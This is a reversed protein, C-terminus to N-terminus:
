GGPDSFSQFLLLTPYVKQGGLADFILWFRFFPPRSFRHKKRGGGPVSEAENSAGGPMGLAALILDFDSGSSGLSMKAGIAYKTAGALSFCM